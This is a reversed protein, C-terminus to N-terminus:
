LPRIKSLLIQSQTYSYMGTYDTLVIQPLHKKDTCDAKTMRGIVHSSQTVYDM